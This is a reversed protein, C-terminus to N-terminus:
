WNRMPGVDIVDYGSSKLMRAAAASRAGSLCYVVVPKDKPIEALRASVEDVPINKAGSVHGAQFEEPTRVDVLSGGQAVVERHNRKPAAPKGPQASADGGGHECGTASVVVSLALVVSALLKM